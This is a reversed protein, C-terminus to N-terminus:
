DPGGVVLREPAAIRGQSWLEAYGDDVSVIVDDGTLAGSRSLWTGIILPEDPSLSYCSGAQVRRRRRIEHPLSALQEHKPGTEQWETEAVLCVATWDPSLSVVINQSLLVSLCPSLSMLQHRNLLLGQGPYHSPHEELEILRSPASYACGIDSRGLIFTM